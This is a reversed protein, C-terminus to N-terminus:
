EGPVERHDTAAPISWSTWSMVELQAHERPEHLQTTARLLDLKDPRRNSTRALRNLGREM